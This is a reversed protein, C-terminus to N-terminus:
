VNALTQSTTLSQSSSVSLLQGQLRIFQEL